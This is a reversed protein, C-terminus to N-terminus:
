SKLIELMYSYHLVKTYLKILKVMELMNEHNRKAVEAYEDHM